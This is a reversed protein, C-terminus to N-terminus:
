YSSTILNDWYSNNARWQSYNRANGQYIGSDFFVEGAKVGVVWNDFNVPEGFVIKNYIGDSNKLCRFWGNVNFKDELKKKISDVDWRAILLDKKQMIKPIIDKKNIRMDKDYDYKILINNNKDVFLKQGFTSYKKITPIPEGSWSFRGKKKENPKGFIQLFTDRTINYKEDKFIYYDASWDGFTTKSKTSKKMEYGYLDPLNDANPKIGMQKELWHGEKGAHKVTYKSLDAKKGKVKKNFM